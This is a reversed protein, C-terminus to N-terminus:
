SSGAGGAAAAPPTAGAGGAAAAAAGVSTASAAAAAAAAAAEATAARMSEGGIDLVQRSLEDMMDAATSEDAVGSGGAAADDPFEWTTGKAYMTAAAATLSIPEYGRPKADELRLAEPSGVEPIERLLVEVLKHSKIASRKIFPDTLLEHASPRSRPDKVLCRAVFKNFRDSAVPAMVGPPDVYSKLSPPAERITKILVQFPPLKAYPAYGKFLELATIGVSWIDAKENYGRTQEMVEPAMWCPTGVFTQPPPPPHCCPMRVPLFAALLLLLCVRVKRAEASSRDGTKNMWGAVGFDAIAVRGDSNLLVNGAKIDRHIQGHTHIYDLGQLMERMITAIVEESLGHGEAIRHMKRLSRLVYYCSGKDMLPMILWLDSKVVFSCYLDVANEHRSLKMTRVEAQIEELSTQINELAMIKVAVMVDKSPCHAKM